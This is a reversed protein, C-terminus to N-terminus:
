EREEGAQKNTGQLTPTTDYTVRERSALAARWEGSANCCSCASTILHARYGGCGAVLRHWLQQPPSM